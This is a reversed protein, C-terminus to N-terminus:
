FIKSWREPSTTKAKAVAKTWWEKHRGQRYLRDYQRDWKTRKRPKRKM